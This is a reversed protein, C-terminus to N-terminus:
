WCKPAPYLQIKVGVCKEDFYSKIYSIIKNNEKREKGSRSLVEGIGLVSYINTVVKMNCLHKRNKTIKSEIYRQALFM